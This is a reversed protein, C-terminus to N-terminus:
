DLKARRLIAQVNGHRWCTNRYAIGLEELRRGIARFTLGEGKLKVIMKITEQEAEDLVIRNANTPDARWGYPPREIRSMRQGAAQNRLMGRSTMLRTLKARYRAFVALIGRILEDEPGEGNNGEDAAEIRAGVKAARRECWHQVYPDRALRDRWRVVLVGGCQLADLADLLGKRKALADVPDVAKTDDVGSAECDQYVAQVEYGKAKCYERCREIQKENSLSESAGPRPSFRAYVWAMTVKPQGTAQRRRPRKASRKPPAKM